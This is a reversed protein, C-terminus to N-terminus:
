FYGHTVLTRRLFYVKMTINNAREYIVDDRPPYPDPFLHCLRHVAGIDTRSIDLHQVMQM